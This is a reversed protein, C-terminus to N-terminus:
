LKYIISEPAVDEIIKFVVEWDGGALGCGIKYPIHLKCNALLSKKYAIDLVTRLAEYNTYVRNKGYGDQAIANAIWLGEKVKKFYIEGLPARFNRYACHERYDEYAEPYKNRIQKALGAGMVGRNNCQHIIIGEEVDLINMRVIKPM